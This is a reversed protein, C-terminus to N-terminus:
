RGTVRQRVIEEARLWDDFDHGEIRGRREYLQYAVRAIEQEDFVPESQAKKRSALRWGRNNAM